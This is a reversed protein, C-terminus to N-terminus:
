MMDYHALRFPASKLVTTLFNTALTAVIIPTFLTKLREREDEGLGFRKEEGDQHFSFIPKSIYVISLTILFIVVTSEISVMRVM